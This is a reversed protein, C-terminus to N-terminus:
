AGRPMGHDVCTRLWLELSVAAYRTRDYEGRSSGRNLPLNRKSFSDLLGRSWEGLENDFWRNVPVVLGKKDERDIVADPVIGRAAMRLIYKTTYGRVKMDPPLRFAFEVIRHDLFPTRNELGVAAVAKDNMTILSPFTLKLDTYGMRDILGRQKEFIGRFLAFIRGSPDDGRKVLEFYRECQDRFMRESWFYRALPVYNKLFPAAALRAEELMLLYRVYGGFIEDAGQGGLVVKVHPKALRALAFEAISSPTAIPHDLHYLVRPFDRRFDEATPEIVFHEAGITKAVLSAYSFEDYREGLPFRCSFVKQPRALCAILSSDLGGSLFVGLPVDSRLRLRVSDQLLWRLEEIYESETRAPGDFPEIDWYRTIVPNGDRVVMFCGPELSRINRFMTNGLLPAEFVQYEEDVVPEAPVETLLAKIESAFLFRNGDRCYYLPKEGLRDRAIFLETGDWLAFAFMGIFRRLCDRGWEEYAHVIVETDSKTYFAHKPELEKRLERYNFIEGNYVIWIKSDENHIPQHGTVLDIVNLRRIGLKLSGDEYYGHDDPGRHTLTDTMARIDGEGWIGAIGCM